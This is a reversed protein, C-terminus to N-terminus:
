MEICTLGCKYKYVEQSFEDRTLSGIVPVEVTPLGMLKYDDM